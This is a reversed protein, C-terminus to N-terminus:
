GRFGEADIGHKTVLRHLFARHMGARRAAEAVNGQAASLAQRVFAVELRDAADKTARRKMEELEEATRPVAFGPPPAGGTLERPLDGPRLVSEASMAIARLLINELERVNGPFSYRKLVEVAEPDPRMGDRKLEKSFKACFHEVLAPVDEPHERLPPVHVRFVDLRYYLDERFRKRRVEETLDRNTAAVVRGDVHIPEDSGVRQIEGFQLARLLKAQVEVPIEGVEDLFVTGRHASEFTGRRDGAAGTFAGKAHGFLESEILSPPVAACNLVVFPHRRRASNAHVARALLEKGTGSEGTVLVPADTEAARAVIRLVEMLKPGSGVIASFDYKRRLEAVARDLEEQRARLEGRRRVMAASAAVEAAVAGALAVLLREEGPGAGPVWVAGVTRGDRLIPVAKEIEADPGSSIWGGAPDPVAFLAPGAGVAAAILEAALALQLKLDLERAFLARITAALARGERSALDREPPETEQAAGSPDYVGGGAARARVFADELAMLLAEVDVADEPVSAIGFSGPRADHIRRAIGAAEARRTEPLLIHFAPAGEARALLDGPRLHRRVERALAAPDSGGVVFAARVVAFPRGTRGARAVEENLRALFTRHTPLGTVPDTPQVARLSAVDLALASLDAIRTLTGAAEPALKGPSDGYLVLAGAARGRPLLPAVGLRRLRLGSRQAADRFRADKAADETWVLRGASLLPRLADIEEDRAFPAPAGRAAREIPEPNEATWTVVLARACGTTAIAQDLLEGLLEVLDFDSNIQRISDALLDVPDPM